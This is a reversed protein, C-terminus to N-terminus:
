VMAAGSIGNIVTMKCWNAFTAHYTRQMTLEVTVVGDDDGFIELDELVTGAFQVLLSLGASPSITAQFQKQTLTGGVIADVDTKTTANFELGLKLTGDWPNEVYSQAALNGICWRSARDPKINLEMFRLTCNALTTSGMTGGWADWKLGSAGVHNPVIVNVSALPTLSALTTSSLQIGVLDGSIAMRKKPELRMTFNSLLSGAMRYAGVTADGKVLTLVRPSPATTIPAAYARTYPGAGSPTAQGFLNDLWYPLHEYCAWGKMSGTASLGNVIGIDGGALAQTMDGIVEVDNASKLPMEEIGRLAVTPTVATTYVSQTGAQARVESMM